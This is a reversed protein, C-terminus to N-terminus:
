FGTTLHDANKGPPEPPSDRRKGKWSLSAVRRGRSVAGEEMTVTVTTPPPSRGIADSRRGRRGGEM